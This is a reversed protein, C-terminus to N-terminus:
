MIVMSPLTIQQISGGDMYFFNMPPSQRGGRTQAAADVIQLYWGNTFLERSIDFGVQNTIQARQSESLSVGRRITGNNLGENVPDIVANRILSYGDENYPLSNVALMMDIISKQIQSNLYIQNIFTDFWRFRGTIRGDYLFAYTNSPGSAAYAGYYSYGNSLLAKADAYNDCTPALGAQSKLAFSIRGERQKWAISAACGMVFARFDGDENADYLPMVGEYEAVNAIYGFNTEDGTVRARENNDSAVYGYRYNQSSNWLSLALMDDMDLQEVTSFTGWNLSLTKVEDIAVVPTKPASGRSIIAAGFGLKSAADGSISTIESTAIDETVTIIFRSTMEDWSVAAVSDIGVMTAILSAANTFSTAASLDVTGSHVTGNISIAFEGSIAKLEALTKGKLSTARAWAARETTSYAYFYLLDPFVKANNRARFYTGALKAEISDNGFWAKAEDASYFTLLSGSPIGENTGLFVGNIALPNSGTGIVGPNIQVVQDIPIFKGM